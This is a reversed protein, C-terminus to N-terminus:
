VQMILLNLQDSKYTKRFPYLDVNIMSNMALYVYHELQNACHLLLFSQYKFINKRQKIMVVVLRWSTIYKVMLFCYQRTNNSPQVSFCSVSETLSLKRQGDCLTQMNWTVFMQAKVLHMYKLIPRWSSTKVQKGEVSWGGLPWIVSMVICRQWLFWMKDLHM